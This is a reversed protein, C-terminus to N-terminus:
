QGHVIRNREAVMLQPLTGKKTAAIFRDLSLVFIYFEDMRFTRGKEPHDPYVVIGARLRSAKLYATMQHLISDLDLATGGKVEIVVPSGFELPMGPIWAVIDPRFIHGSVEYTPEVTVQIGSKVLTDAVLQELRSEPFNTPEALTNIDIATARQTQRRSKLVDKKQSAARGSHELNRLFLHLHFSLAKVDDLPAQVYPFSELTVPISASKEVILFVARGAGVAFGLEFLVNVTQPQATIIGCVFDVGRLMDFITGVPSEGPPPTSKEHVIDVNARHLAM